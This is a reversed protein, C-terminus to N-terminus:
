PMWPQRCTRCRHYTLDRDTLDRDTLNGDNFTPPLLDWAAERTPPITVLIYQDDGYTTTPAYASYAM